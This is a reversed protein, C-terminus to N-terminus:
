FSGRRASLYASGRGSGVLSSRKVVMGGEAM